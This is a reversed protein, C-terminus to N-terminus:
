LHARTSHVYMVTSKRPSQPALSKNSPMSTQVSRMFRLVRAKERYVAFSPPRPPGNFRSVFRLKAEDLKVDNSCNKESFRAGHRIKGKFYLTVCRRSEFRGNVDLCFNRKPRAQGSRALGFRLKQKSTLLLNSGLLHTVRYKNPFDTTPQAKIANHHSIGWM